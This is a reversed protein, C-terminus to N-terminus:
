IWRVKLGMESMSNLSRVEGDLAGDLTRTRTANQRLPHVPVPHAALHIQAAIQAASHIASIIASHIANINVHNAAHTQLTQALAGPIANRAAHRVHRIKQLAMAM